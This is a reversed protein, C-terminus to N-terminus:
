PRYPPVPAPVDQVPPAPTPVPRNAWLRVGATLVVIGFFLPIGDWVLFGGGREGPFQTWKNIDILQGVPLVMAGIGLLTVLGGVGTLGGGIWRATLAVAIVVAIAGLAAVWRAQPPTSEFLMVSHMIRMGFFSMSAIGLWGALLGIVLGLGNNARKPQQIPTSQYPVPAPYREPQGPPPGPPGPPGPQYPAPEYPAPEYPTPYPPAAQYQTAYPPAAQYTTPASPPTRSWLRVGAILLLIGFFLPSGDFLRVGLREEGPFHVFDILRFATTSPLLIVSLGLATLFLGAGTLAGARISPTTLVGAVVLAAGALGALWGLSEVEVDLFERRAQFMRLGLSSATAVGLWGAALGILLGLGNHRKTL